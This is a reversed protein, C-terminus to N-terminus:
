PLDKSTLNIGKTDKNQKGRLSPIPPLTLFSCTENLSAYSYAQLSIEVGLILINRNCNM